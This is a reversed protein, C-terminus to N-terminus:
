PERRSAVIARSAATQPATLNLVQVVGTAINRFAPAAVSGGYIKEGEADDVVISIVVEPKEAPMFGIFSSYYSGKEYSGEVFKRSTGTKGAVTFVDLPKPLQAEKGTGTAVVECMARTVRRAVDQSVTQRIVRPLFQKVVKGEGDTVAQVLHPEMLKGGNAIAGVAATMQLNSTSIEYGIPVRTQSIKTWSQPPRLIGKQEGRLAQVPSQVLEGFGFQRLYRYIRSDGLLLGIKAFAINSSKAFGDITRLSGYPHVDTLEHGAYWFSGNDCFVPTDLDVVGESLAAALTFIKFTSGPEYLDLIAANRINEPKMTARDNPDYTPRNTLGLIEGTDPRMVIIHVADPHFESVLREAETEIVHQVGQDITLVVNLGNRPPRDYQRYGPIEKRRGDRVIRREGPIGCLYKDMVLEIGDMGKEIEVPARWEPSKQETANAFGIVHSAEHSNPYVRLQRDRFILSKPRLARLATEASDPLDRVLLQDRREPFLYAALQNEEWGLAQAIASKEEPRELAVKGDIRLDTVTITQALVRGKADLIAGRRPATPVVDTHMRVAKERYDEHSVLQVYILRASIATFGCAFILIVVLARFQLPPTM